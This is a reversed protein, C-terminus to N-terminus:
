AARKSNLHARVRQNLEQSREKLLRSYEQLQQSRECLQKLTEDLSKQGADPENALPYLHVM